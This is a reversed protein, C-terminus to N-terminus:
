VERDLRYIVTQQPDEPDVANWVLVKGDESISPWRAFSEGSVNETTGNERLMVASRGGEARTYALISGNAALAPDQEDVGSEGIVTKTGLATNIMVVDSDSDPSDSETWALTKGDKSVVPTLEPLPNHTLPKLTGDEDKMWVDGGDFRVKRRFFVREGNGSIRPHIDVEGGSTVESCQGSHCRHIDFGITKEVDDFTYVVSKGDHSIDPSDEDAPSNALPTTSGSNWQFVDWSEPREETASSLRSWVITDGDASVKPELDHDPSKSVAELRGDKVREVDWNDGNWRTYVVTSGDASLRPHGLNGSAIRTLRGTLGSTTLM